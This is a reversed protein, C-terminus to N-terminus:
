QWWFAFRRLIADLVDLVERVRLWPTRVEYDMVKQALTLCTKM